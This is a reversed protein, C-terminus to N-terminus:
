TLSLLSKLLCRTSQTGTDSKHSSYLRLGVTKEPPLFNKQGHRQLKQDYCFCLDFVPLLWTELGPLLVGSFFGLIM